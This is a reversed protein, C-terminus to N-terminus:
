PPSSNATTSGVIETLPAIWTASVIRRATMCAAIGCAAVAVPTTVTLTPTAVSRGFMIDVM